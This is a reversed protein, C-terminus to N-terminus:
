KRLGYDRLVARSGYARAREIQVIARSENTGDLAPLLTIYCGRQVDVPMGAPDVLERAATNKLEAVINSADNTDATDTDWITVQADATANAGSLLSVNSVRGPGVFVHGDKTMLVERAWRNTIPYIRADDQVFEDFLITGTTTALPNQLGLVGQGVAGQDLSAVQTCWVASAATAGEPTVYLDITGDNPGSDVTVDLEICYWVGREIPTGGFSSPATEGIGLQIADTAATVKFGVVAEVTGGAQQLEFLNAAAEDASATFDDGFLVYFRFFNNTGAGVNIDGETVTADATGSNIVRMCYSGRFPALKPYAALTSYKPFDLKSGTDTESDWEANTGAEFNAEFIFPHAL